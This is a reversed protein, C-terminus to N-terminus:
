RMGAARVDLTPEKEAGAFIIARACAGFTLRGESACRVVVRGSRRADPRATRCQTACAIAAASPGVATGIFVFGRTATPGAVSGILHPVLTRLKLIFSARAGGHSTTAPTQSMKRSSRQTYVLVYKTCVACAFKPQQTLLRPHVSAMFLRRKASASDHVSRSLPLLRRLPLFRVPSEHGAVLLDGADHPM